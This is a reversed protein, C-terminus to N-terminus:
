GSDGARALVRRRVTDIHDRLAYLEDAHALPVAIRHAVRDLEDLEDLLETRTATGAQARTEIARLRAYWRFVRQRVRYTYLPPVVRSLPLLLVILGGIVLWMRQVLNSAWFPLWHQWFPPTGNIARDGEPSVPLESTRTNPFERPGNLWGAGGHITQAAQAFLQRLAPHTQERTLLSTTAALLTIDHPPVDGALDAVGRPLTVTRLFPFRRTYADAQTLELPAVGPARLLERVVPSQPASTLVVADLLGGQLLGAAASAGLQSSSVDHGGMGNAELLRRMLEPVGSGAQDVNIRLGRLARLTDPAPARADGRRMFVWLPEYFLAGLSQLATDGDEGAAATPDNAAASASATVPAAGSGGRVFALDTGGARLLDLNAASGETAILEVTIGDHALTEAYRKGFGAYASGEPGTALRVTRPPQPDLWWYAAVLLGGALLLIPGASVLLDRMALLILTLRQM